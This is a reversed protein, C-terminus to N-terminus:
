SYIIKLGIQQHVRPCIIWDVIKLKLLGGLAIFSKNIFFCAVFFFCYEKSKLTEDKKDESVGNKNEHLKPSPTGEDNSDDIRLGHDLGDEDDGYLM